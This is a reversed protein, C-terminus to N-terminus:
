GLWREILRDGGRGTWFAILLVDIVLLGTPVGGTTAQSHISLGFIMLTGVVALWPKTVTPSPETM